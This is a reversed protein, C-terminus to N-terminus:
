PFLNSNNIMELNVLCIFLFNPQRKVAKETFKEVQTIIKRVRPGIEDYEDGMYWVIKQNERIRDLLEKQEKADKKIPSYQNLYYSSLVQSASLIDRVVFNIDNFPEVHNPGFMAMYRYKVSYLEAFLDENKHYREFAVYAQNLYRTEEETENALQKRTKGEESHSFPSRISDIVDRAHYFLALVKEALEIERKGIFEKKWSIVGWVFSAAAITVSIAAIIVSAGM